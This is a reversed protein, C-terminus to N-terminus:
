IRDSLVLDEINSISEKSLFVPYLEKKDYYKDMQYLGACIPDFSCMACCETKGYAWKKQRVLKKEDLFYVMREEQKIIKRTETSCHVFEVMYCLPVREVRFTRGCSALFNMADHLELEFDILRPITDKHRAARNMLPDLNNWIFHRIFPATTVIWRTLRSLHDANYKNIVTIIDTQIGLRNLNRLSKKIRALSHDNKTLFAQVKPNHSYVSLGVHTLGAAKLSELYKLDSIKQGNTIMRVAIKKSCAYRILDHLFPYLTPEGGTFVIGDYNEHIYFNIIKKFFDQSRNKKTPPNSCFRCTQNCRRTVQIYALNAM